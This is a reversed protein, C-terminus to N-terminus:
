HGILGYTGKQRLVLSVFIGGVGGGGGGGAPQSASNYKRIHCMATSLVRCSYRRRIPVEAHLGPANWIVQKLPMGFIGWLGGEGVLCQTPAGKVGEPISVLQKKTLPM